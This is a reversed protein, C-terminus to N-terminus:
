LPSVSVSACGQRTDRSRSTRMGRSRRRDLAEDVAKPDSNGGRGDLRCLLTLNQRGSLYPYFAPADVFGAVGDPISGGTGDLDHGLLHVTGGDRRALGLVIRLLTTKGAGNPGLLGHVQGAPAAMHVDFLTDRDDYRKSIRVAEIALPNM